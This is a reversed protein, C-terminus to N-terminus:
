KMVPAAKIPEGMPAPAPAPLPASPAAPVPAIHGNTVTGYACSQCCNPCIDGCCDCTNHLCCGASAVLALAAFLGLIRRM